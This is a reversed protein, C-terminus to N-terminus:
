KVSFLNILKKNYDKVAKLNKIKLVKRCQLADGILNTNKEKQTASFLYILKEFTRSWKSKKNRFRNKSQM